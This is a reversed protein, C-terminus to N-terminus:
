EHHYKEGRLITFARYLQEVFFLRIMQHSFTMKSLSIKSNARAYVDASFGFAGGVIFVARKNGANMIGQLNSSFEMSSFQKGNEDLVVVYDTPFIKALLLEGEKQKLLNESFNKANKLSPIVEITFNVYHGLRKSYQDIGEQLWKEDTKGVVLLAVNM